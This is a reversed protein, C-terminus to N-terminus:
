AVKWARGEEIGRQRHLRSANACTEDCRWALIKRIRHSIRGENRIWNRNRRANGYSVDEDDCWVGEDDDDDDGNKERAKAM